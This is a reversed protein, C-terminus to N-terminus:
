EVGGRATSGPLDLRVVLGHNGNRASASGGGRSAVMGVLALGLGSGGSTTSFHPQFLEELRDPPVGGASDEVEVFVGDESSGARVWIDGEDGGIAVVSNEILNALARRLWQRDGALWCTGPAPLDLHLRIGRRRLIQLGSVADDVLETCDIPVAEWQELAILNSFSRATAQLRDVQESVERCADDVLDGLDSDGRRRAEELEQMWLRVPTLPNKVEHAVIRALQNLHRLRDVRVLSSVDDVVAVLGHASDPFPTRAVGVQWTLDRGPYPTVMEHERGGDSDIRGALRHVLELVITRHEGLMREGSPNAFRVEGDASLVLVAPALTELTIRLMEQQSRLSDERRRVEDTMLRVARVVEALDLEAPEHMAPPPDGRQIRRAVDVLDELSRSWREEIRATLVLAILASLIAGALLWDVVGALDGARIPAQPLLELLLRDEGLAVGAAAISRGGDQIVVPDDRGIAWMAWAAPEPLAPLRGMAVLDPRSAALLEGGDFLLVEGGIQEALWGAFVTDVPPIEGLNLVSWRAARLADLGVVREFRLEDLQVRRHLFLTLIVLPLVVGGAVLIRLRGGFTRWREPRPKPPTVVLMGLMAWVTAIVVQVVWGSTGPHMAIVAVLWDGRRWVKALQSQWGVRVRVWGGDSHFLDAADVTDLPRVEPHLTAGVEGSRTFVAGWLPVGGDRVPGGWDCLWSWPETAAFVELAGDGTPLGEIPWQGLSVVAGGAPTLQGWRSLELGEPSSAVLAVPLRQGDDSWRSLVEPALDDLRCRDAPVPLLEDLEVVGPRLLGSSVRDFSRELAVPVSVLDAALGAAAVVVGAILRRGLRRQPDGAIVPWGAVVWALAVMWLGGWGPALLRAPLHNSFVPLSSVAGAAAAAIVAVVIVVRAIARPLVSSLRWIVAAVGLVVVAMIGSVPEGFLLLSTV